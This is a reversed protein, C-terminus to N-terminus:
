RAFMYVLVVCFIDAKSDRKAMHRGNHTACQVVMALDVPNADDDLVRGQGAGDHAHGRTINNEFM